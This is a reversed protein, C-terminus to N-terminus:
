KYTGYKKRKFVKCSIKKHVELEKEKIFKPIYDEVIAIYEDLSNLEWFIELFRMDIHIRM